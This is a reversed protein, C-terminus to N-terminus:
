FRDRLGAEDMALQALELLTMCGRGGDSRGALSVSVADLVASLSRRRGEPTSEIARSRTSARRPFRACALAARGGLDPRFPRVEPSDPSGPPPAGLLRALPSHPPVPTGGCITRDGHSSGAISSAIM